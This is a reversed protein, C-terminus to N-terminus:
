LVEGQIMKKTDLRNIYIIPILSTVLILILMFGIVKIMTMELFVSSSFINEGQSVMILISLFASAIIVFVNEVIISINIARPTFGFASLVGYMKQNKQIDLIMISGSIFISSIIAIVVLEEFIGVFQSNEEQIRDFIESVSSIDCSSGKSTFLKYINDIAEEKNKDDKLTFFYTSNIKVDSFDPLKYFAVIEENLNIYTEINGTINNSCFDVDMVYQDKEFYGAIIATCGDMYTFTEGIEFGSYSSGLYLYMQGAEIDEEVPYIGEKLKLNNIAFTDEAFAYTSDIVALYSESGGLPEHGTKSWLSKQQRLLEEINQWEFGSSTSLSYINEVYKELESLKVNQYDEDVIFPLNIVYTDNTGKTLLKEAKYRDYNENDRMYMTYGVLLISIATLIIVPILKFIKRSLSRISVEIIHM